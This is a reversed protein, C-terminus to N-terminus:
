IAGCLHVIHFTFAASSLHSSHAFLTRGENSFRWSLAWILNMKDRQAQKHASLSKPLDTGGEVLGEANFSLDLGTTARAIV